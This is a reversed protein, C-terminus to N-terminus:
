RAAVKHEEAHLARCLLAQTTERRSKMGAAVGWEDVREVLKPPLDVVLRKSREENAKNVRYASM